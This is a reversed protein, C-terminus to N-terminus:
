RQYVSCIQIDHFTKIKYSIHIEKHAKNLKHLYFECITPFTTCIIKRSSIEFRVCILQGLLEAM